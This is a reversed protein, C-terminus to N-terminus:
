CFFTNPIHLCINICITQTHLRFSAANSVYTASPLIPGFIMIQATKHRIASAHCARPHSILFAQPWDEDVVYQESHFINGIGVLQMIWNGDIATLSLLALLHSHLHELVHHM